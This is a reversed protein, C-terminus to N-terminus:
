SETLGDEAAQAAQVKRKIRAIESEVADRDRLYDTLPVVLCLSPDMVGFRRSHGYGEICFFYRMADEADRAQPIFFLHDCDGYHLIYDTLAKM